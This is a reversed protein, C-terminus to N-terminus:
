SRRNLDHDNKAVAPIGSRKLLFVVLLQASVIAITHAEQVDRFVSEADTRSPKLSSM